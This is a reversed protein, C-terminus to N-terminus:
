ENRIHLSEGTREAPLHRTEDYRAVSWILKAPDVVFEGPQERQEQPKPESM